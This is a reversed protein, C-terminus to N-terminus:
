RLGGAFSAIASLSDSDTRKFRKGRLDSGDASDQVRDSGSLGFGEGFDPLEMGLDTRFAASQISSISV